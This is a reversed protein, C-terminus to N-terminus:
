TQEVYLVKQRAETSTHTGRAASIYFLCVNAAMFAFHSKCWLRRERKGERKESSKRQGRGM